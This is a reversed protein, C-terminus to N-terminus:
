LWDLLFKHRAPEVFRCTSLGLAALAAHLSARKPGDVFENFSVVDANVYRLVDVLPGQIARGRTEM